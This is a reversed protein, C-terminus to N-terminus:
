LRTGGAIEINQGTIYQAKDSLLFAILDAVEQNKAPRKMPIKTLEQPLDVATDLYGPSIMNIRVLDPALEAALSQTLMLLGAKAMTYVTSYHDVRSTNLGAIGINIVSGQLQKISPMLNKILMFPAHLNTQFLDDWQEEPTKLSSGIFYNGVNNILSKTQPFKEKYEILFKQTSERTSFDGQICEAEVNFRRCEQLVAHAEKVSQRFHIVVPYKQRALEKCIAAGLNKAGGTVLTWNM